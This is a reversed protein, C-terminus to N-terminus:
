NIKNKHLFNVTKFKLYTLKKKKGLFHRKALPRDSIHTVSKKYCKIVDDTIMTVCHIQVRREIRRYMKNNKM